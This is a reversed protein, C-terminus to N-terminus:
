VRVRASRRADVRVSRCVVGFANSGTECCGVTGTKSDVAVTVRYPLSAKSNIIKRKKSLYLDRERRGNRRLQQVRVDM